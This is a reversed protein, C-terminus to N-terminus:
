RFRLALRSRSRRDLRDIRGLTVCGGDSRIRAYVDGVIPDTARARALRARLWAAATRVRAAGDRREDLRDALEAAPRGIAARLDISRDAVDDLSADLLAFAGPPSAAPDRARPFARVASRHDHDGDPARRLLDGPVSENGHRRRASATRRAAGRARFPRESLAARASLRAGRRLGLDARRARALLRREDAGLREDDM